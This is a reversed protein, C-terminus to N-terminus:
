DSRELHRSEWERLVEPANKLNRRPLWEDYNPSYGTFRVRYLKQRKGARSKGWKEDVIAEVEYEPLVQFDDRSLEKTPRDQFETPSPRYFELHEINLVPHIGFSAPMRLRYAVPSIKEMIEFPGDYRPLLKKGLGSFNRLLRLTHVNLMVLDGEEFERVLRGNNYSKRQFVQALLLADCAQTRIAKFREAMENAVASWGRLDPTEKDDQRTVASSKTQDLSKTKAVTANAIAEM